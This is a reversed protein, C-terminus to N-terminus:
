YDKFKRMWQSWDEPQVGGARTWKGRMDFQPSWRLTWLEKIGVNRVSWDMFLSNVGGGHRDMAYSSMQWAKDPPADEVTPPDDSPHPCGYPNKSDTYVPVTDAGKVASSVWVDTAGDEGYEAPMWGNQGYSSIPLVHTPEADAFSWPSNTSGTTIFGGPEEVPKPKRAAPCLLLDGYGHLEGYKERGIDAVNRDKAAGARAYFGRPLVWPVLNYRPFLPPMRHENDATYAAYYIGWQRLNAQCAVTRAQKRVRGLTPLLVAMLLTIIAIVVLLEILTFGNANAISWKGNVLERGGRGM